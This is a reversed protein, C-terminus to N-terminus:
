WLGPNVIITDGEQLPYSWSTRDNLRLKQVRNGRLVETAQPVANYTIGGGERVAELLTLGPHWDVKGPFMVAERLEVHAKGIRAANPPLSIGVSIENTRWWKDCELTVKSKLDSISIRAAMVKGIKPFRLYGHSDVTGTGRFLTPGDGSPNRDRVAIYRIMSNEHIAAHDEMAEMFKEYTLSNGRSPSLCFFWFM